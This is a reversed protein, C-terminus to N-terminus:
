PRMTKYHLVADAVMEAVNIDTYAENSISKIASIVTSHNKGFYRAVQTTKLKACKVAVYCTIHRALILDRRRNRSRAESPCTGVVDCANYFIEQIM